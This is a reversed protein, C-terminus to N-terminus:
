SRVTTIVAAGASVTFTILWKISRSYEKPNELEAILTLRSLLGRRNGKQVITPTTSMESAPSKLGGSPTSAMSRSMSPTSFTNEMGKTHADPLVEDKSITDM